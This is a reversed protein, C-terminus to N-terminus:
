WRGGGNEVVKKEGNEVMLKEGNECGNLCTDGDWEVMGVWGEM